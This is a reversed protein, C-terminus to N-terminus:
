THPRRAVTPVATAPTIAAAAVIAIWDVSPVSWRAAPWTATTKRSHPASPANVRLRIASISVCWAAAISWAASIAVALSSRTDSWVSAWVSGAENSRRSTTSEIRCRSRETTRKLASTTSTRSSAWDTHVTSSASPTRRGAWRVSASRGCGSWRASVVVPGTRM